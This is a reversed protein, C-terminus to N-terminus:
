WIAIRKAGARIMPDGDKCAFAQQFAPVNAVSGIVRFRAPSHPDTNVQLKLAEDRMNRRWSQAFAIFFRQDPTLGDIKEGGKAQATMAFADHAVLLGGYDAINEGLTLKGNVHLDGIAVYDDYQKALLATRDDFQKRDADTWWSVFNGKADFKSGQDDFGHMMEHGIVAGMAGYNIADDVDPDFFPPQMIAAPFVIENQQPNYYANVTQPTMGWEARDVPKGIKAFQRATEFRNAARINDLYHTRTTELATYDRWTDPYGIKPDFAALKAYAKQKTEDSMWDLKGLRAHLAVRLNEVMALARQKAEPPFARQVYLEGLAEGMGASVTDMVRKWRPRLEQAGTLVKGNFGFSEDVFADSLYPSAAAVLNWRLYARWQDVPVEGLMKDAEAFFGPQALSFSQIGDIDLAAFYKTWSWHPTHKDAAAVTIFNYYSAPDRMALKDLSANALRTEMALIWGAQKTAEAAPVGILALSRRIHAVYKDRIAKSEADTDLYYEREPLGLGGQTAYAITVTSDKFDPSPGFNFLPYLGEAHWTTLLAIVDARTKLADIKALAPKIPEYGAKQLGAEDMGTAYFDGIKQANSGPAAKSKVAEDLISRLLVLNRERMENGIGWNSYEAPIPNSALWGGNAFQYFNTCAPTEEDFNRRDIGHQNTFASTSSGTVLAITLALVRPVLHHRM